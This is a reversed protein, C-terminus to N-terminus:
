PIIGLVNGLGDMLGILIFYKVGPATDWMTALQSTHAPDRPM